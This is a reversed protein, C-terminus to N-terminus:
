FSLFNYTRGLSLSAFLPSYFFTHMKKEKGNFFLAGYVPLNNRYIFSTNYSTDFITHGSIDFGLETLPSGEEPGNM